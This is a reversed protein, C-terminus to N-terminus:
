NYVPGKMLNDDKMFKKFQDETVEEFGLLVPNLIDEEEELFEKIYKIAKNFCIKFEEPISCIGDLEIIVNPNEIADFLYGQFRYVIYM